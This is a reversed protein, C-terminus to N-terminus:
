HIGAHKLISDIEKLINESYWTPQIEAKADDSQIFLGLGIGLIVTLSEPSVDKVFSIWTQRNHPPHNAWKEIHEVVEIPDKLTVQIAALQIPIEDPSLARITSAAAHLVVDAAKSAFAEEIKKIDAELEAKIDEGIKKLDATATHEAQKIASLTANEAEKLGKLIQDKIEKELDAMSEIGEKVKEIGDKVARQAEKSADEVGDKAKDIGEKAKNAAHQAKHVAHHFGHKIRGGISM